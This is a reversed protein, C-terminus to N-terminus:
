PQDPLRFSNLDLRPFQTLSLGTRGAGRRSSNLTQSHLETYLVLLSPSPRPWRCGLMHSAIPEANGRGRLLVEAPEAPEQWHTLGAHGRGALM